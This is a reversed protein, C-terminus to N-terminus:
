AEAEEVVVELALDLDLDLDLEFDLPVVLADNDLEVVGYWSCPTQLFTSWSNDVTSPHVAGLSRFHAEVHRLSLHSRRTMYFHDYDDVVSARVNMPSRVGRAVCVVEFLVQHVRKEAAVHFLWHCALLTM